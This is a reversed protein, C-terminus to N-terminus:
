GQKLLALFAAPEIVPLLGDHFDCTNQTVLYDADAESATAMQVADEFDAWGWSIAKCIVTDDVAVVSLVALLETLTTM